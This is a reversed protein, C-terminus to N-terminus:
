GVDDDQGGRSEFIALWAEVEAPPLPKDSQEAAAAQIADLEAAFAEAPQVRAGLRTVTAALEADSTVIRWDRPNKSRRIRRAIVADANSGHPAFVVDIGGSRHAGSLAFTAGPDFVVTIAKGTRARYSQLRRVLKEEDDPDSLSIAPLRGILNHGDILIPM